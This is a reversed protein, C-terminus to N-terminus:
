QKRYSEAVKRYSNEVILVQFMNEDYYCGAQRKNVDFVDWAQGFRDAREYRGAFTRYRLMRTLFHSGDNLIQKRLM